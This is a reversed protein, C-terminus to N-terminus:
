VRTQDQYLRSIASRSTKSCASSTLPLTDAAICFWVTHESSLVTSIGPQRGSSTCGPRDPRIMSQLPPVHLRGHGRGMCTRKRRVVDVKVGTVVEIVKLRRGVDTKDGVRSRAKGRPVIMRSESVGLPPLARVASDPAASDYTNGRAVAVSSRSQTGHLHLAFQLASLVYVCASLGDEEEGVCGIDKEFCAVVM